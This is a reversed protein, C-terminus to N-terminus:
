FILYNDSLQINNIDSPNDPVYTTGPLGGFLNIILSMFLMAILIVVVIKAIKNMSLM